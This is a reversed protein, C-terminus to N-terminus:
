VPRTSPARLIAAVAAVVVVAGVWQHPAFREGLVLVGLSVGVVPILYFSVAATSAPVSRLAGLYLWYAAAYYLVGSGVASAWALASVSGLGLSGDVVALGVVAVAVVALAHVQQALVVPATAPVDGIRARAVVTYVACCGVGAVTVIVGLPTGGGADDVLVLAMGALAVVSLGVLAPGIRERLVVAALVLIFIPELAWLMVSLSATIQTLGILTLAYAIGPNLIGLRALVPPIPVAPRPDVARRHVIWMAVSLAGVSAALQIALLPFPAIEAVARKSIVTGSGWAVAALILALVAGRPSSLGSM